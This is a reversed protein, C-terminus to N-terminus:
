ARSSWRMVGSCACSRSAMSCVSTCAATRKSRGTTRCVGCAAEATASSMTVVSHGERPATENAYPIALSWQLATGPRSSGTPSVQPRNDHARGAVRAPRATASGAGPSRHGRPRCHHTQRAISWTPTPPVPPPLLHCVEFAYREGFHLLHRRGVGVPQETLPERM